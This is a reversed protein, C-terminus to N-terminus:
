KKVLKRNKQQNHLIKNDLKAKLDEIGAVVVWRNNFWSGLNKNDFFMGDCIAAFIVKNKDFSTNKNKGPTYGSSNKLYSIMDKYKMGQTGGSQKIYKHSAYVRYGKYDWVFDIATSNNTKTYEIKGNRIFQNTVKEPITGKFDKTIKELAVKEYINQRKPDKILYSAMFSNTKARTIFDKVDFDFKLCHNVVKLVFPDKLSPHKIRRITGMKPMIQKKITELHEYLDQIQKSNIKKLNKRVDTLNKRYARYMSKSYEDTFLKVNRDAM